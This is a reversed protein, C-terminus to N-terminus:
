VRSAWHACWGSPKVRALRFGQVSFSLLGGLLLAESAAGASPARNKAVYDACPTGRMIWCTREVDLKQREVVGNDKLGVFGVRVTM